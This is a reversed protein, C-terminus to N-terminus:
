LQLSTNWMRVFSITKNYKILLPFTQAVLFIQIVVKKNQCITNNIIIVNFKSAVRTCAYAVYKIKIYFELSYVIAYVITLDLM